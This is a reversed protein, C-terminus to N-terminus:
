HLAGYSTAKRILEARTDAGFKERLTAVQKRVTNVSVQLNRAIEPVSDDTALLPLLVIERETLHVARIGDEGADNLQRLRELLLPFAADDTPGESRYLDVLAERAPKPLLALPLFAENALMRQLEAVGAARLEDNCSGDLLAAAARLLKLRYEDGQDLDAEFPGGDALRIAREYQGAWLNIRALPLLKLNGDMTEAAQTAAGFAGSKILLLVRARALM